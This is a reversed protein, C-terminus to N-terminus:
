LYPVSTLATLTDLCFIRKSTTWPGHQNNNQSKLYTTRELLFNTDKADCNAVRICFQHSCWHVSPVKVNMRTLIVSHIIMKFVEVSMFASVFIM